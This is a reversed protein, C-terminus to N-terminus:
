LALIKEGGNYVREIFEIYNLDSMVLFTRDIPKLDDRWFFIALFIILVNLVITCIRLCLRLTFM